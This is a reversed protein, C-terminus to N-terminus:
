RGGAWVHVWGGVQLIGALHPRKPMSIYASALATATAVLQMPLYRCPVLLPLLAHHSHRQPQASPGLQPRRTRRWAGSSLALLALVPAGWGASSTPPAPASAFQLLSPPCAPTLLPRRRQRWSDAPMHRQSCRSALCGAMCSGLLRFPKYKGFTFCVVCLLFFFVALARLRVQFWPLSSTASNPM